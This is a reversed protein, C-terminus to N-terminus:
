EDKCRDKVAEVAAGVSEIYARGEAFVARKDRYDREHGCNLESEDIEAARKQPGSREGGVLKQESKQERQGHDGGLKHTLKDESDEFYLLSKLFYFHRSRRVQWLAPVCRFKGKRALSIAERHFIQEAFTFHGSARVHAFKM